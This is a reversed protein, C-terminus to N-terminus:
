CTPIISKAHKEKIIFIIFPEAKVSQSIVDYKNYLHYM